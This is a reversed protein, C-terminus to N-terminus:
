RDAQLRPNRRQGLMGAFGCVVIQDIRDLAINRDGFHAPRKDVVCQIRFAIHFAGSEGVVCAIEM